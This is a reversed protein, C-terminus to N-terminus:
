KNMDVSEKRFQKMLREIELSIKRARVGAAKNNKELQLNAEKTFQSTLDSVNKILEDM